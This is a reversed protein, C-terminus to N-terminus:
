AELREGYDGYHGTEVLSAVWCPQRGRRIVGEEGQSERQTEQREGGGQLGAGCHSKSTEGWARRLRTVKGTVVQWVENPECRRNQDGPTTYRSLTRLHVHRGILHCDQSGLM